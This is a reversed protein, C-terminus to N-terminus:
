SCKGKLIKKKYTRYVDNTKIFITGLTCTSGVKAFIVVLLCYDKHADTLIIISVLNCLLIGFLLIYCLIRDKFIKMKSKNYKMILIVFLILVKISLINVCLLFIGAPNKTLFVIRPKVQVCSTRNETPWEDDKCKLCTSSGPKDSYGNATCNQCQWCCSAFWKDVIKYQGAPCLVGCVGQFNDPIFSEELTLNGTCTENVNVVCGWHGINVFCQEDKQFSVISYKVNRPNGKPTFSVKNM